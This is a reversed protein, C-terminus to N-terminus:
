PSVEPVEFIVLNGSQWVVALRRNFLEQIRAQADRDPTALYDERHNLTAMREAERRNFLIHTIGQSRLRVIMDRTSGSHEAIDVILPKIIPDELVLKREIGFSRSEALLYVVADAPLERNIFEIAPYHTINRSLFADEEVIGLVVGIQSPLHYIRFPNLNNVLLAFLM